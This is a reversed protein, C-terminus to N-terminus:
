RHMVKEVLTFIKIFNPNKLEQKKNLPAKADNFEKIVSIFDKNFGRKKNEAMQIIKSEKVLKRLNRFISRSLPVKGEILHKTIGNGQSKRGRKKM